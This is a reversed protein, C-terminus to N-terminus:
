DTSKVQSSVKFFSFLFKHLSCSCIKVENFRLKVHVLRSSPVVEAVAQEESQKLREHVKGGARKRGGLTLRSM